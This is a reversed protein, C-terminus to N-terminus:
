SLLSDLLEWNWMIIMAIAGFILTIGFFVKIVTPSKIDRNFVGKHKALFEAGNEFYIWRIGLVWLIVVSLHFVVIFPNGIWPALYSFTSPVSGLLMGIGMVLWPINLYILYGKFLQDYGEELEPDDKIFKKSRKKLIFANAVTM